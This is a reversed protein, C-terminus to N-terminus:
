GLKFESLRHVSMEQAGRMLKEWMSSAMGREKPSHLESSTYMQTYVQQACRQSLLNVRRYAQARSSSDLKQAQGSSEESLRPLYGHHRLANSHRTTM